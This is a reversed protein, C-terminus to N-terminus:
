CAALVRPVERLLLVVVVAREPEKRKFAISRLAGHGHTDLLYKVSAFYVCLRSEWAQLDVGYISWVLCSTDKRFIQDFFLLVVHWPISGMVNQRGIGRSGLNMRFFSGTFWHKLWEAMQVTISSQDRKQYIFPSEITFPSPWTQQRVFAFNEHNHWIPNTNFLPARTESTM